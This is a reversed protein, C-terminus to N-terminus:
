GGSGGDRWLVVVGFLLNGGVGVAIGRRWQRSLVVSRDVSLLVMILGLLFGLVVGFVFDSPAGETEPGGEDDSGGGGGGGGGGLGDEADSLRQLHAALAADALLRRDEGGDVGPLLGGTGDDENGTGAGRGVTGVSGPASAPDKAGGGGAHTGGGGPPASVGVHLFSGDVLGASTVSSTGGGLLKGAHILRLRTGPPVSGLRAIEAQLAALTSTPPIALALPPDAGAISVRLHLLDADNNDSPSPPPPSPTGPHPPPLPSAPPPHPPPM